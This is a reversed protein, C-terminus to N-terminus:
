HDKNKNQKVRPLDDYEAGLRQALRETERLLLLRGHSTHEEEALKQALRQAESKHGKWWERVSGYLQVSIGTLLVTIITQVLQPDM